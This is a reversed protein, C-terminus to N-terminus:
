VSICLHTSSKACARGGPATVPWPTTSLGTGGEWSKAQICGRVEAGFHLPKRTSNVPDAPSHFASKVCLMGLVCFLVARRLRLWIKKSQPPFRLAVGSQFSPRYDFLPAVAASQWRLGFDERSHIIKITATCLLTSFFFSSLFSRFNARLKPKLRDSGRSRPVGLKKVALFSPM